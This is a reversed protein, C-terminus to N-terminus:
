RKICIQYTYKVPSSAGAVGYVYCQNCQACDMNIGYTAIIGAIEVQKGWSNKLIEISGRIIDKTHPKLKTHPTKGSPRDQINRYHKILHRLYKKCWFDFDSPSTYENDYVYPKNKPQWIVKQGIQWKPQPYKSEM